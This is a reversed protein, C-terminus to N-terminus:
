KQRCSYNDGFLAIVCGAWSATSPRRSPRVSSCSRPHRPVRSRRACRGQLAGVRMGRQRPLRSSAPSLTVSAQGVLGGNGVRRVAGPYSGAHSDRVRLIASRSREPPGRTDHRPDRTFERRGRRGAWPPPPVAMDVIRLLERASAAAPSPMAPLSGPSSGTGGGPAGSVSGSPTDGAPGGGGTGTGGDGRDTGSANREPPRRLAAALLAKADDHGFRYMPFGPELEDVRSGHASRQYVVGLAALDIRYGEELTALFQLAGEADEESMLGYRKARRVYFALVTALEKARLAPHTSPSSACGPHRPVHPHPGTTNL